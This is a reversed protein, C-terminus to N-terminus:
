GVIGRGTVSYSGGALGLADRAACRPGCHGATCDHIVVRPRVLPKRSGEGFEHVWDVIKGGNGTGKRTTYTIETADGVELFPGVAVGGGLLKGGSLKGWHTRNYEAQQAESSAGEVKGRYVIFLRGAGDYALLPAGKLTWSLSTKRGRHLVVLRTLLGLLTLGEKPWHVAM